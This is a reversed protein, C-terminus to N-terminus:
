KKLGTEFLAGLNDIDGKLVGLATIGLWRSDNQETEDLRKNECALHELSKIDGNKM